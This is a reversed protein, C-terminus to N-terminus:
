SVKMAYEDLAQEIKGIENSGNTAFRLLPINYLKLIHDKMRDRKYQPTGIKHYHFGDVEIAFVPEKRISNYILFDVHTWMNSVYHSEEENLRDTNRILMNLPQHCNVTLALQSRDHLIDVIKGYMINESEYESVTLHKQLFELRAATYQKYLLDFISYIESQIIQFNNYRIYALLDGINSDSPQDNGSTVLCFKNKARSIAVNLLYPDDSFDTVINDVTTLVITDKERGQFKHVTHVEIEDTDLQGAIISVQDRYPAIIGINKLDTDKDKLSPLAENKLVDIERQNFHERCHDGTVTQYVTLVNEEGHDQTMIILKNDYFKQNCFGIIKPHCRYHERLLTQAIDPFIICISKLFSNSFSYGNPLKYKNFIISSQKKIYNTAVNPLQKLDGVIVANKACSLALAGTAIDVQSSEDMILYDYIVGKLSSRSSFTTSLIVPYEKVVTNSSKWLDEDTFVKRETGSNNAYKEFLKAKLYGLSLDTLKTMKEKANLNALANELYKIRANLESQRATYFLTQFLTIINALNKKYFKWTAIRYIFVSKIKFWLSVGRDKESFRDCEQWLKMLTASKLTSHSKVNECSLGTETCYQKFYKIELNLSNLEHQLNVLEEQQKFINTMEKIFTKINNKMKVQIDANIQWNSLDPYKGTQNELFAKKNHSNGLLAVIFGMNYKPSSLKELVNEIASNNNSVIQMTKERILLNAIINLITQTKGTGPPGQIVSIQNTLAREVAKFQSANGGFPFILESKDYTDIKYKDPNLYVPM